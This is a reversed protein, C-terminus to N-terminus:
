PFPITIKNAVREDATVLAKMDRDVGGARLKSSASASGLGPVDFHAQDCHRGLQEVTGLPWKIWWFNVCAQKGDAAALRIYIQGAVNVQFYVDSQEGAPLYLIHYRDDAAAPSTLTGALTLMVAVLNAALAALQRLLMRFSICTPRM